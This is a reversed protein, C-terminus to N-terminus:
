RFRIIPTVLPASWSFRYLGLTAFAILIMGSVVLQPPLPGVYSLRDLDWRLATAVWAGCM